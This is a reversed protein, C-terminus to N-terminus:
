CTEFLRRCKSAQLRYVTEWIHISALSIIKRGAPTCTYWNKDRVKAFFPTCFIKRAFYKVMSFIGIYLLVKTHLAFKLVYMYRLCHQCNNTMNLPSAYIYCSCTSFMYMIGIFYKKHLLVHLPFFNKPM